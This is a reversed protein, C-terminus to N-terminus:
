KINCHKCVWVNVGGGGMGIIDVVNFLPKLDGVPRPTQTHPYLSQLSARAVVIARLQHLPLTLCLYLFVLFILCFTPSVILLSSKETIIHTM